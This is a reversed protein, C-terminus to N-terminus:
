RLEFITDAKEELRMARLYGDILGTMQKGVENSEVESRRMKYCACLLFFVDAIRRSVGVKAMHAMIHKIYKTRSLLDRLQKPTYISHSSLEELLECLRIASIAEGQLESPFLSNWEVNVIHELGDFTLVGDPGEGVIGAALCAKRHQDDAERIKMRRITKAYDDAVDMLKAYNVLEDVNVRKSQSRKYSEYHSFVAWLDQTLTRIQIECCAGVHTSSRLCLHNASYGDERIALGGDDATKELQGLGNLCKYLLAEAEPHQDKTAITLRIGAIDHLDAAGTFFDKKNMEKRDVKRHISRIRKIRSEPNRRFIEENNAVLASVLPNVDNLLSMHTDLLTRIRSLGDGKFLAEIHM